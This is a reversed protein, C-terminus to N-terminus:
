CSLMSLLYTFRFSYFIYLMGPTEPLAQVAKIFSENPMFDFTNNTLDSVTRPM